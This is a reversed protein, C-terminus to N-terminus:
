PSPEFWVLQGPFDIVMRTTQLWDLGLIIAPRDAVGFAEFVPLDAVLAPLNMLRRHGLEVAPVTTSRTVVANNTAGSITEGQELRAPDWGLRKGLAWNFRTKRAGTDIVATASVGGVILPVTLLMGRTRSARVPQSRLNSPREGPPLLSVQKRPLDFDITRDGFVDLGVIGVLPVGDIRRELRAAKIPGARVGDLVLLRLHALPLETTGTQGQITEMGALSLRASDAFDAYVATGEAGTDFVFQRVGFDATVPVTAHGSEAISLPVKASAQPSTLLGLLASAVLPFQRPRMARDDCRIDKAAVAACAPFEGLHSQALVPPFRVNSEVQFQQNM